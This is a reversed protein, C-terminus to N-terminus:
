ALCHMRPTPVQVADEGVQLAHAMAALTDLGVEWAAAAEQATACLEQSDSQLRALGLLARRCVAPRSHRRPSRPPQKAIYLLQEGLTAAARRRVKDAGDRLADALVAVAGIKACRWLSRPQRHVRAKACHAPNRLLRM